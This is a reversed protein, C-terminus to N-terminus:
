RAPLSRVAPTVQRGDLYFTVAGLTDTRYTSVGMAGLRELVERRPHGFSNRAGVSIVAYRPRVASLFGPTSSSKSGNHAIKIVDARAVSPAMIEEMKKEADAELLASTQGYSFRLVLSDNNRFKPGPVWDRPPSFVRVSASGFAFADGAAHRSVIMKEGEAQKLLARVEPIDPTPGLWLERPHFDAIVSAMGGMHDSHAHTVCVADLRSIGRSWLYPAVVDEGFDFDSQWPGLSGGADVLVTKGEPTIVLASEAQGVDISTVELTQPRVQPRPKIAAIWLASVLVGCLGAIAFLRNRRILVLAIAFAIVAALAPILAPAALRIDATHLGGLTHVTRTIGALAWSTIVAPVYALPKWIYALAVAGVSAPMLIMTLPVAVLNAPLSVVTARHFYWAMPLTLAIQAIASVVVLDYASLVASIIASLCRRAVRERLMKNPVGRLQRPWRPLFLALREAIMRVDLRFQALRPDLSPDKAILALQGLARKYPSSTREMVPVAIGIIALVSLFTLQFSADTLARPDFVLLVLAAIALANLMAGDRYLLRACMFICLMIVPRMIPAGSEAVYAYGCSLLFTLVVAVIQSCRLRNLTWFVVAALIAVNMGSVVLIHYIGTRQFASKTDRGIFSAEGILMADLLAAEEAPWLSHIKAVISRRIRSAWRAWRSGGQGNLVEIRDMRASGIAFIGQQALYGVYDLAGPNGFNRPPRLKAPFRLREGYMFVKPLSGEDEDDSEDWRERSYISLRLAAEPKVTVSKTEIEDDAPAGDKAFRLTPRKVKIKSHVEDECLTLGSARLLEASWISNAACAAKRRRADTSGSSRSRSAAVEAGRDDAEIEVTEIQVDLLERRQAGSGRLVGDHVVYGTVIVERGDTVLSMDPRVDASNRARINLAGLAVFALLVCGLAGYVRGAPNRLAAGPNQVAATGAATAHAVRGRRVFVVAAVALVGAAVVWCPMPRWCRGGVLIGSAYALVAYFVPQRPM